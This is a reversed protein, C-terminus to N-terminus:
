QILASQTDTPLLVPFNNLRKYRLLHIRVTDYSLFYKKVNLHRYLFRPKMKNPNDKHTEAFADIINYITNNRIKRISVGISHCFHQIQRETYDLKAHKKVYTRLQAYTLIRADPDTLAILIASSLEHMYQHYHGRSCIGQVKLRQRPTM